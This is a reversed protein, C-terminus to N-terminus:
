GVEGKKALLIAKKDQEVVFEADTEQTDWLQFASPVGSVARPAIRHDKCLFGHNGGRVQVAPATCAIKVGERTFHYHVCGKGKVNLAPPRPSSAYGARISGKLGLLQMVVDM